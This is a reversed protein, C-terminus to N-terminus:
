SGMGSVQFSEDEGRHLTCSCLWLLGEDGTKPKGALEFATCCAECLRCEQEVTQGNQISYYGNRSDYFRECGPNPCQSLFPTRTPEVETVPTMTVTCRDCLM